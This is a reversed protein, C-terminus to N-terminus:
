GVKIINIKDIKKLLELNMMGSVIKSVILVKSARYILIFYIILLKLPYVYAVM